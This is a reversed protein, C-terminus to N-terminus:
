PRWASGGLLKPSAIFYELATADQDHGHVVVYDRREPRQEPLDVKGCGL